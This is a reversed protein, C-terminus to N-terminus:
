IHILSLNEVGYCFGFHRALMIELSGFNLVSPSFDKKRPDESKRQQKIKSILSSQYFEPINFTKM